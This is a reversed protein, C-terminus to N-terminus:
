SCVCVCVCVSVCVCVCVEPAEWLFSVVRTRTDMGIELETKVRGAFRGDDSTCVRGFEDAEDMEAWRGSM